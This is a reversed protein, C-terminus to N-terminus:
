NCCATSKDIRNELLLATVQKLVKLAQLSGRILRTPAIPQKLM